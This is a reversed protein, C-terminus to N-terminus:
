WSFVSSMHESVKGHRTETEVTLYHTVLVRWAGGLELSARVCTGVNIIDKLVKFCIICCTSLM